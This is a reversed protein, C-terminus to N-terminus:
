SGCHHDSWYQKMRFGSEETTERLVYPALVEPIQWSLAEQRDSFEVEAYCFADDVQSVELVLGGELGYRRYDKEVPTGGCLSLLAQYEREGCPFEVETRSLTGEGKVTLTCVATGDVLKRRVRVEPELSLYAQHVLAQSLLELGPGPAPFGSMLFKREIEQLEAM